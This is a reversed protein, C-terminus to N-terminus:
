SFGLTLALWLALGLGLGLGFGLVLAFGLGLGPLHAKFSVQDWKDLEFHELICNHQMLTCQHPIM